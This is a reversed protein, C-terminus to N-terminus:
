LKPDKDTLLGASPSAAQGRGCLQAATAARPHLNAGIFLAPLRLRHGADM